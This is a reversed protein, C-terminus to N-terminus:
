RKLGAIGEREGAQKREGIREVDKVRQEEDETDVSVLDILFEAVNREECKYGLKAFYAEVQATPGTYVTVGRPGLLMVHDLMKYVSHRPAHLTMVAAVGRAKALDKILKVVKGAQSSDLGTTPEDALIVSKSGITEIAVSM